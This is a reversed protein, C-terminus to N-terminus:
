MRGRRRRWPLWNTLPAVASALLSLNYRINNEVQQYIAAYPAIYWAKGPPLVSAPGPRIPPLGGIYTLGLPPLPYPPLDFRARGPPLTGSPIGRVTGNWLWTPGPPPPGIPPLGWIRGTTIPPGAPTSGLLAPNRKQSEPVAQYPVQPPQTYLPVGVIGAIAAKFAMVITVTHDATSQTFTAAISGASSQIRDEAATALTSASANSRLTYNTGQTYTNTAGTFDTVGGFILDGNATTTINGSSIADTGTGPTLQEQITHGDIPNSTMVGSYDEAIITDFATQPSFNGSQITPANQVNPFYYSSISDGSSTNGLQDVITATNSPSANDTVNTLDAIHGSVGYQVIGAVLDGAAVAGGLTVSIVSRLTSNNQQGINGQVHSITM